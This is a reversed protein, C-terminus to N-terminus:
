FIIFSTIIWMTFLSVLISTAENIVSLKHRKWISDSDQAIVNADCVSEVMSSEMFANDLLKSRVIM